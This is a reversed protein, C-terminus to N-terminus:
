SFCRRSAVCLTKNFHYEIRFISFPQAGMHDTIIYGFDDNFGYKSPFQFSSIVLYQIAYM